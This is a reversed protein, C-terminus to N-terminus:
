NKSGFDFDTISLHIETELNNNVNEAMFSVVAETLPSLMKLYNSRIKEALFQNHYHLDLMSVHM